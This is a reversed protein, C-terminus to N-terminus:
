RSELEKLIYSRSILVLRGDTKDAALILGESFVSGMNAQTGTVYGIETM